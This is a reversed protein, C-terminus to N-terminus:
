KSKKHYNRDSHLTETVTTAPSKKGEDKTVFQGDSANRTVKRPKDEVKDSEDPEQESVELKKAALRDRAAQLEAKAVEIKAKAEDVDMYYANINTEPM